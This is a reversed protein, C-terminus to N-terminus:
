RKIERAFLCELTKATGLYQKIRLAEQLTFDFEGNIKRRLTEYTLGTERALVSRVVGKAMMAAELQRCKGLKKDAM